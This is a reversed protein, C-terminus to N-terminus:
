TVLKWPESWGSLNELTDEKWNVPKKKFSDWTVKPVTMCRTHRIDINPFESKWEEAKAPELLNGKRKGPEYGLNRAWTPNGFTPLKDWGNDYIIKLRRKYFDIALQRNCCLGSVSAHHDYTVILRSRYEWKWVNTNYFFVDDKNPQFKWHSEHYLVDSECFFVYDNTSAELATLIQRFYTMIGTRGEYVINTGFDM